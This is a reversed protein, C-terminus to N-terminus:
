SYYSRIITHPRFFSTKFPRPLVSHEGLKDGQKSNLVHSYVYVFVADTDDTVRSLNSGGGTSYLFLLEPGAGLRSAKLVNKKFRERRREEEM